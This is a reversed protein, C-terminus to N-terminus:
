YPDGDKCINLTKKRSMTWELTLTVYNLTITVFINRRQYWNNQELVVCDLFGLLKIILFFFLKNGVNCAWWVDVTTNQEDYDFFSRYQHSDWRQCMCRLAWPNSLFSYTFLAGARFTAVQFHCTDRGSVGWQSLHTVHNLESIGIPSFPNDEGLSFHYM